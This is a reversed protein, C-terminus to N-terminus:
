EDDVVVEADVPEVDDVTWTGLTSSLTVLSADTRGEDIYSEVRVVHPPAPTIKGIALLTADDKPPLGPQELDIAAEIEDVFRVEHTTAFADIVGVQEDLSLEAEGIMAVYVILLPEEDGAPEPVFRDIVARYADIGIVVGAEPEDSCGAAITAGTVM